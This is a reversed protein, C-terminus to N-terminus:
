KNPDRIVFPRCGRGGSVGDFINTNVASIPYSVCMFIFDKIQSDLFIQSDRSDPGGVIVAFNEPLAGGVIIRNWKKCIAM